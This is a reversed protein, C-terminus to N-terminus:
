DAARLYVRLAGAQHEIRNIGWGSGPLDFVVYLEGGGSAPHHGTRIRLLEPTGVSTVAPEYPSRIGAIRLLERPREGALRQRSVDAAAIPGDGSIVVITEGEATGIRISSLRTLKGAPGAPPPELDPDFASVFEPAREAPSAPSEASAVEPPEDDGAESDTGPENTVPTTDRGGASGRLQWWGIGLAVLLLGAAAALQLRARSFRRETPPEPRLTELPARLGSDPPHEASFAEVPGGESAVNAAFTFGDEGPAEIAAGTATDPPWLAAESNGAPRTTVSTTPGKPRVLPLPAPSTPLEPPPPGLQGSELAEAVLRALFERLLDEGPEDLYRFQIGMGAPKERGDDRVRIWLVEGFGTIPKKFPPLPLEFRVLTGVPHPPRAIVYTGGVSLDLTKFVFERHDGFRLKIELRVPTRVM